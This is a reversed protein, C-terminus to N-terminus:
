FSCCIDPMILSSKLVHINNVTVYFKGVTSFQVCQQKWLLAQLIVHVEFYLPFQSTHKWPLLASCHQMIHVNNIM